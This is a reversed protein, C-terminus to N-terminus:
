IKTMGLLKKIFVKSDKLNNMMSPRNLHEFFYDLQEKFFKDKYTDYRYVHMRENLFYYVESKIIDALIYGDKFDIKITREFLRSLFDLHVNVRTGKETTILVDAFDDVDVKLDSAKGVAGCIKKISGFLYEVYDFEHSLDLFVGGGMKKVASYNKRYNQGKRWHPLYSSCTIRVHFIKKGEILEKIKKIVPHFRLCYATYFKVKNRRCVKELQGLGQLRNSLPKEMFINMGLAACRIATQVHLSAPNTIFAVDPKIKKVEGWSYVEKIGLPNEQSKKHRFAYLEHTFHEQLLRGHRKGISGLGFLIIKM